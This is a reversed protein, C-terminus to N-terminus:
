PSGNIAGALQRCLDIADDLSRKAAALDNRQYEVDAIGAYVRGAAPPPPQGPAVLGELALHYTALAADLGGGARQALGCLEAARGLVVREGTRRCLAIEDLFGAEADDLRGGLLSAVAVHARTLLDLM